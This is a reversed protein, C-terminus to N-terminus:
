VDSQKNGVIENYNNMTLLQGTASLRIINEAVNHLDMDTKADERAYELLRVLLPINVTAKDVPNIEMVEDAERLLAATKKTKLADEIQYLFM